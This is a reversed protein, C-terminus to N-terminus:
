KKGEHYPDHSGKGEMRMEEAARHIDEHTFGRPSQKMKGRAMSEARLKDVRKDHDDRDKKSIPFYRGVNKEDSM